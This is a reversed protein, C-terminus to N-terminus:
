LKQMHGPPVTTAAVDSSRAAHDGIAHALIRAILAVGIGADHDADRRLIIGRHCPGSAPM